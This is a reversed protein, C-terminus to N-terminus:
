NHLSWMVLVQPLGGLWCGALSQPEWNFLGALDSRQHCGRSNTQTTSVESSQVKHSMMHTWLGPYTKNIGAWLFWTISPTKRKEAALNAIILYCIVLTPPCSALRFLSFMRQDWKYTSDLFFSFEYFCLTFPLQRPLFPPPSSPIIIMLHYLSSIVHILKLPQFTRTHSASLSNHEHIM